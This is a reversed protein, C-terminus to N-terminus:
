HQGNRKCKPDITENKTGVFNVNDFLYLILSVVGVHKPLFIGEESLANHWCQCWYDVSCYYKYLKMAQQRYSQKHFM